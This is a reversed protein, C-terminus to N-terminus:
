SKRKAYKLLTSGDTFGLPLLSGVTFTLFNDALFFLALWWAATGAPLLLLFVAAVMSLLLSAQPGGLARRVHINAPLPPENYPYISGSLVWWLVIGSMPYGTRRAAWAHGLQHFIDAAWHLITAFLALVIAGALPQGVPWIALILLVVFLLATGVLASTRATVELDGLKGLRFVNDMSAWALKNGSAIRSAAM